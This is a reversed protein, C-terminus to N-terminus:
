GTQKPIYGYDNLRVSDQNNSATKGIIALLVSLSRSLISFAPLDIKDDQFVLISSRENQLFISDNELCVKVKSCSTLFEHLSNVFDDDIDINTKVSKGISSLCAYVVEIMRKENLYSVSLLFVFPNSINIPIIKTVLNKKRSELTFFENEMLIDKASFFLKNLLNIALDSIEVPEAYITDDPPFSMNLSM